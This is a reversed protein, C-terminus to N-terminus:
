RENCNEVEEKNLREEILKRIFKSLTIEERDTVEVLQDFTENRLMIGVYNNFRKKRM